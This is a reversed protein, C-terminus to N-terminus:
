GCGGAADTDYACFPSGANLPELCLSNPEVGAQEEHTVLVKKYGASSTDGLTQKERIAAGSLLVDVFGQVRDLGWFRHHGVRFYPVGFIDDQFAQALCDLAESRVAADDLSGM